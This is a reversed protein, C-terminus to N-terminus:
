KDEDPCRWEEVVGYWRGKLLRMAEDIVDILHEDCLDEIGWIYEDCFWYVKLTFM